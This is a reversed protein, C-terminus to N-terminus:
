RGYPAEEQQAQEAAPITYGGANPGDYQAIGPVEIGVAYATGLDVIEIPETSVLTIPESTEGDFLNLRAGALLNEVQDALASSAMAQHEAGGRLNQDACTVVFRPVSNYSLQQADSTSQMPKGAFYVRVSPPNMILEGSDNFDSSSIAQVDVGPLQDRLLNLLTQWVRVTSFTGGLEMLANSM